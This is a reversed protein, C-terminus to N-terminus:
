KSAVSERQRTSRVLPQLEAVVSTALALHTHVDADISDLTERYETAARGSGQRLLATLQHLNRSLSALEACSATLMSRHAAPNASSALVPAKHVLAAIYDGVFLGADQAARLLADRDEPHMRLSLRVRNDTREGRGGHPAAPSRTVTANLAAELAGRVFASPLVGQEASRALLTAKLGRLDVSIRDRSSPAM